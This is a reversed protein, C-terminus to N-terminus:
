LINQVFTVKDPGEAGKPIGSLRLNNRYELDETTKKLFEIDKAHQCFMLCLTRLIMIHQGMQLM